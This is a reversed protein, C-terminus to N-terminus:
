EIISDDIKAKIMDDLGSYDSNEAYLVTDYKAEIDTKDQEKM